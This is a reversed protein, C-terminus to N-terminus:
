LSVAEEKTPEIENEEEASRKAEEAAGEVAATEEKAEELARILNSLCREPDDMPSKPMLNEAVDAPTIKVEGMLNEIKDFMQHSEIGLYNKGLVKFGEFTCYSLEIHKDMRGRRILAPDLKEVYNTTFVILREGGCASWLGDIFNLLGSLTVKSSGHNGNSGEEKAEKREKNSFEDDNMKKDEKSFKEGKKKRQGTLDLSCDIDEIVIMSKSTTEILLKRLETNDKVATLELDYVDYSLLNAMAAIMTSKGTGPPGYLLYGRKWAKGIREYFEKSKSFTMLDEIIERKKKGELAMTEFTAPHEFVIHSWMTQKYSPWKYGPSNTYLKRQRNKVRIEKGEKMVHGLYSETVTERYRKHFSLKYFRREQEPYYSMSLPRPPAATKTLVWWVKAGRYEDTVREFEDMSLVINSCDKGVEAKLRKASKATNSSLYAEVNAYFDSRKLRDGSFEHISIGIYPYFFSTIQHTLKELLRQIEYPCYQRIIAMIFMFSAVTSGVTTWLEAMTAPLVM